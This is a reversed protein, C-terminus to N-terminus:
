SCGRPRSRRSRAGAARARGGGRRGGGAWRVKRASESGAQQKLFPAAVDKANTVAGLMGLLWVKQNYEPRASLLMVSLTSGQSHGVLGLSPKGTTRLVFDIQAPLDVLAMDDMSFAWYASDTDRRTRHGRSFTSGRANALWVDFGAAHPALSHRPPRPRKPPPTRPAKHGARVAPPNDRRGGRCDPLWAGCDPRGAAGRLGRGAGADALYFGMSSAPDLCAFASSALTIGHHLLVAPRPGSRTANRAGHPIRYLRLVFGDPTEVPYSELPYGRPLVLDPPQSLPVYEAPHETHPHPPVAADRARAAAASDRPATGRKARRRTARAPPPLLAPLCQAFRAPRAPAAVGEMSASERSVGPVDRTVLGGLPDPQGGAKWGHAAGAMSAAAAPAASGDLLSRLAVANGPPLAALLLLPLLLLQPPGYATVAAFPQRRGRGAAARSPACM